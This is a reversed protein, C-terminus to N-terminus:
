LPLKIQHEVIKSGKQINEKWWLPQLNTYHCLIRLEEETKATSLAMKHDIHWGFKGFNEWSMGKKFQREIHIKATEYDCGLLEKSRGQKGWGQKIKFARTVGNRLSVIMRNFPDNDYREKRLIRRRENYNRKYLKIEEFHESAYKASIANLKEKNAIQYQRKYEKNKEANKKRYAKQYDETCVKCSYQIGLKRKKHLPFEEFEKEINCKICVVRM